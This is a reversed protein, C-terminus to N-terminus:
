SWKAELKAAEQTTLGILQIAREIDRADDAGVGLIDATTKGKSGGGKGGTKGRRGGGAKKPKSPAAPHDAISVPTSAAAPTPPHYGSGDYFAGIEMMPGGRVDNTNRAINAAEAKFAALEGRLQALRALAESADFGLSTQNEIQAQLTEVEREMVGIKAEAEKSEVNVLMGGETIGMSENLKAFFDSNGVNNLWSTGAAEADAFAQAISQIQVIFGEADFGDIGSAVEGVMEAFHASAGTAQDFEGVMTVLSNGLQTFAQGATTQTTEAQRRLEESGVGFARFFATSSVQGDTVLKRLGAVSGGAEKLGRTVAQAITPTGELISNFEEARVVGGGLAQSLQLLSGSAAQADTGGVRLAVAIGDTFQILESSSVGLEKQTLSLKSYLDVLSSIPASNRQASQFLKAYVANLEDGELGAVRLSNQMKTAADALRLFHRVQQAVVGGALLGGGVKLLQQMGRLSRGSSRELEAFSRASSANSRKFADEARQATKLARAEIRALQQTFKQETLGIPLELGADAQAVGCRGSRWWSTM